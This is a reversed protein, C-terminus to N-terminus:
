FVTISKLTGRGKFPKFLYSHRLYIFIQSKPYIGQLFAYKETINLGNLPTWYGVRTMKDEKLKLLDLKFNTRKSEAFSVPGTLGKFKATSIYNLLTSGGNWPM